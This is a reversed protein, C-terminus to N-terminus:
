KVGVPPKELEAKPVKLIVKEGIRDIKDPTIPVRKFTGIKIMFNYITGQAVNLDVDSINGVRNANVDLVEKRTIESLLM